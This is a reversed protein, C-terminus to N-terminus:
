CTKQTFFLAVRARDLQWSFTGIPPLVLQEPAASFARLMVARRRRDAEGLTAGYAEWAPVADEAVM